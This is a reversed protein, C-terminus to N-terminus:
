SEVVTFYISKKNALLRIVAKFLLIVVGFALGFM